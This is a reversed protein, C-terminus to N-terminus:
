LDSMMVYLFCSWNGGLEAYSDEPPHKLIAAILRYPSMSEDWVGTASNGSQESGYQCIQQAVDSSM